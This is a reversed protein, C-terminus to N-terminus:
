KVHEVELLLCKYATLSRIVFDPAEDTYVNLGDGLRLIEGTRANQVGLTGNFLGVTWRGQLRLNSVNEIVNGYREIQAKSEAKWMYGKVEFGDEYSVAPVGEGDKTPPTGSGDKKAAQANIM